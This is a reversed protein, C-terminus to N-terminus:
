IGFLDAIAAACRELTARDADTFANKQESEVDITGVVKRMAPEIVPVIIESRTSGFATLYRPDTTVDGVVVAERSTVATGSLGQTIPFRPYAPEGPGSWGIVTIEEDSVEYIGVWCYDGASRITEAIRVAKAERDEANQLLRGLEDLLRPENMTSEITLWKTRAVDNGVVGISAPPGAPGPRV